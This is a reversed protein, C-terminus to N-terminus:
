GVLTLTGKKIVEKSESSAECTVPQPRHSTLAAENAVVESRHLALRASTPADDVLKFELDLPLFTTRM